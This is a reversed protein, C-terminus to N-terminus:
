KKPAGGVKRSDLAVGNERLISWVMELTGAMLAPCTSARLDDDDHVLGECTVDKWYARFTETLARVYEKIVDSRPEDATGKGLYLGFLAAGGELAGCVGACAGGCYGEMARLLDPNDIGLRKMGIALVTQSCCFSQQGHLEEVMADLKDLWPDADSKACGSM